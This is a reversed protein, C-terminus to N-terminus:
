KCDRYGQMYEAISSSPGRGSDADRCGWDYNRRSEIGDDYGNKYEKDLNYSFSPKREEWADEQGQDYSSRSSCGTLIIVLILALFVKSM